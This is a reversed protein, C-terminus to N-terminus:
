RQKRTQESTKNQSEVYYMFDYLIQRQSISKVPTIGELDVWTTVFPLIETKEGAIDAALTSVYWDRPYHWTSSFLAWQPEPYPVLSPLIWFCSPCFFLDVLSHFLSYDRSLQGLGLLPRFPEAPFCLIHTKRPNRPNWRSFVCVTSVCVSM